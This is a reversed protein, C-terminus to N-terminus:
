SGYAIIRKWVSHAPEYVFRAREERNLGILLSLPFSLIVTIVCGVIFSAVSTVNWSNFAIFLSCSLAVGLLIPRPLTSRLYLMWSVKLYRCTFFPLWLARVILASLLAGFAVGALGYRYGLIVAFAIHLAADVCEAFALRKIQLVGRLVQVSVSSCSRLVLTALHIRFISAVSSIGDGMGLREGIWLRYFDSAWYNAAAGVVSTILLVCLCGKVFVSQLAKYNGKVHHDVLAPFFVQSTPLILRELHIALSLALSYRAIGAVPLLVGIIVADLFYYVSQGLAVFFDWKGYSFIEAFTEWGVYKRSIALEPIQWRSLYWRILSEMFGGAAWAVSVGILEYGAMLACYTMVGSLIRGAVSVVGILDFRATAVFVASYVFLPLQLGVAAGTIAICWFADDKLDPPIRFITNAVLGLFLSVAIVALGVLALVYVSTSAVRNLSPYDKVAYYRTLYQAVGGHFGAALLGYYGTFASTLVWVGYRAEGLQKLVFPTLVLIVVSQVAFVVWHSFINRIIM